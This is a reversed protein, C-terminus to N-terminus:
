TSGTLLWRGAVWAVTQVPRAGINPRGAQATRRMTEPQPRSEVPFLAIETAELGPRGPRLWAWRPSARWRTQRRRVSQRRRRKSAGPKRWSSCSLM